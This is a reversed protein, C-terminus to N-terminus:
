RPSRRDIERRREQHSRVHSRVDEVSFAPFKARLKRLTETNMAGTANKVQLSEQVTRLSIPDLKRSDTRIKNLLVAEDPQTPHDALSEGGALHHYHALYSTDDLKKGGRDDMAGAYPTAAPTHDATNPTFSGEPPKEGSAVAHTVTGSPAAPESGGRRRTTEETTM